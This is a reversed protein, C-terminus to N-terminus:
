IKKKVYTQFYTVSLFRKGSLVNEGTDVMDVHHDNM